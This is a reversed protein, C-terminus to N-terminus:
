WQRRHLHLCNFQGMCWRFSLIIGKEQSDGGLVKADIFEGAVSEMFGQDDMLPYSWRGRIEDSKAASVHGIERGHTRTLSARARGARVDMRARNEKDFGVMDLLCEAQGRTIVRCQRGKHM